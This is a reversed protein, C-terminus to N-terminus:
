ASELSRTTHTYQSPVCESFQASRRITFVSRVIYMNYCHPCETLTAIKRRTTSLCRESSMKQSAGHLHLFLLADLFPLVALAPTCLHCCCLCVHARVCVYACCCFDVFIATAGGGVGGREDNNKKRKKTPGGNDKGSSSWYMRVVSDVGCLLLLPSETTSSRTLLDLWFLGMSVGLLCSLFANVFLM